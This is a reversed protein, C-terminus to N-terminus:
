FGGVFSVVTPCFPSLASFFFLILVQGFIITSMYSICHMLFLSLFALFGTAAMNSLVGPAAQHNSQFMKVKTCMLCMLMGISCLFLFYFISLM